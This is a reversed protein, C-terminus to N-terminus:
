DLLIKKREVKQVTPKKPLTIYLIGDKLDGSIKDQDIDNLIEFTREFDGTRRESYMVKYEGGPEKDPRYCSVILTSEELEIHIDEKKVGPLEVLLKYCDAYDRSEIRGFSAKVMMDFQAHFSPIVSLRNDIESAAPATPSHTPSVKQDAVCDKYRRKLTNHIEPWDQQLPAVAPCRFKTGNPM